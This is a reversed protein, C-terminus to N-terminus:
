QGIADRAQMLKRTVEQERGMTIARAPDPREGLFLVALSEGFYVNSSCESIAALSAAQNPIEIGDLSFKIADNFGPESVKSTGIRWCQYILALNNESRAKRLMLELLPFSMTSLDSAVSLRITADDADSKSFKELSLLLPISEWFQREGVIQGNIDRIKQLAASVIPLRQERNKKITETRHEQSYHAQKNTSEIFINLGDLESQIRRISLNSTDQLNTIEAINLM